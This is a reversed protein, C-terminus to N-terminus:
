LYILIYDEIFIILEWAVPRFGEKQKTHGLLIDLAEPKPPAAMAGSALATAAAFTALKNEDLYQKFTKM